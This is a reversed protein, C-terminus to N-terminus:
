IIDGYESSLIINYYDDICWPNNFNANPSNMELVQNFVTESPNSPNYGKSKFLKSKVNASSDRSTGILLEGDDLIRISQILTGNVSVGVDTWTQGDDLSQSVKNGNSAMILQGDRSMDLPKINTNADLVKWYLKNPYPRESHFLKRVQVTDENVSEKDEINFFPIEGVNFYVVEKNEKNIVVRVFKTNAPLSIIESLNGSSFNKWDQLSIFTQSADYFALKYSTRQADVTNKIGLIYKNNEIVPIFDSTINKDDPNASGTTKSLTTADKFNGLLNVVKEDGDNSEQNEVYYPVVGINLYAENKHEANVVIRTYGAGTPPTFTQNNNSALHVM